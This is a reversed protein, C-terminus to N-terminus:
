IASDLTPNFTGRLLATKIENALNTIVYGNMRKTTSHELGLYMTGPKKVRVVIHGITTDVDQVVMSNGCDVVVNSATSSFVYGGLRDLTDMIRCGKPLKWRLYITEFNYGGDPFTLTLRPVNTVPDIELKMTRDSWHDYYPERWARNASDLFENRLTRAQTSYGCLEPVAGFDIIDNTIDFSMERIRYDDDKDWNYKVQIPQVVVVDQNLIRFSNPDEDTHGDTGNLFEFQNEDIQWLVDSFELKIQKTTKNHLSAKTVDYTKEILFKPKDDSVNYIQYSFLKITKVDSLTDDSYVKVQGYLSLQGGKKIADMKPTETKKEREHDVENHGGKDIYKDGPLYLYSDPIILVNPQQTVSSIYEFPSNFLNQINFYLDYHFDGHGDDIRVYNTYIKLYDDLEGDEFQLDLRTKDTINSLQILRPTEEDTCIVIPPNDPIPNGEDDVIINGDEDTNWLEKQEVGYKLIADVSYPNFNSCDKVIRPEESQHIFTSYDKLIQVDNLDNLKNKTVEDVYFPPIMSMAEAFSESEESVKFALTGRNVYLYDLYKEPKSKVLHAWKFNGITPSSAPIPYTMGNERFGIGNKTPVQERRELTHGINKLERQTSEDQSWDKAANDWAKQNPHPVFKDQELFWQEEEGDRTITVSYPPLEGSIQANAFELVPNDNNDKELSKWGNETQELHVTKKFKFDSFKFRETGDKPLSGNYYLNSSTNLIHYKAINDLNRHSLVITIQGEGIVNTENHIKDILDTSDRATKIFKVYPRLFKRTVNVTETEVKIKSVGNEKVVTEHSIINGHLDRKPEVDQKSEIEIKLKIGDLGVIGNGYQLTEAKSWIRDGKNDFNFPNQTGTFLVQEPVYHNDQISPSLYKGLNCDVYGDIKKNDEDLTNINDTLELVFESVRTPPLIYRKENLFQGNDTRM